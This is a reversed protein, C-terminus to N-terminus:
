ASIAVEGVGGAEHKRETRVIFAPRFVLVM